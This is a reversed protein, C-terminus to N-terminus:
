TSAGPAGEDSKYALPSRYRAYKDDPSYRAPGAMVTSGGCHPCTREMTYRSCATCKLLISKM